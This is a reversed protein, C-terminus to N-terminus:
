GNPPAARQWDHVEVSIFNNQPMTIRTCYSPMARQGCVQSLGGFGMSVVAGACKDSNDKSHGICRNQQEPRNLGAIVRRKREQGRGADTILLM